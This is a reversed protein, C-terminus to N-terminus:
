QSLEPVPDVRRRWPTRGPVAPDGRRRAPLRPAGAAPVPPDVGALGPAAEIAAAVCAALDSVRLDLVVMVADAAALSVVSRRNYLWQYLTAYSYGARVALWPLSVDHAAIRRKVELRLADLLWGLGVGERGM